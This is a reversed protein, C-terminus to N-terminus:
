RKGLKLKYMTILQPEIKILDAATRITDRDRGIHKLRVKLPTFRIVMFLQPTMCGGQDSGLVYDGPEIIQGLFDERQQEM